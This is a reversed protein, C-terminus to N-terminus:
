AIREGKESQADQKKRHYAERRTTLYREYRAAAEPNGAAAEEYMKQRSKKTAESAYARQEALEKAAPDAEARTILDQRAIKKRSQHAELRQAEEPALDAGAKQLEALEKLTRKRPQAAKKKERCKKVQEAKRKRHEELRQM